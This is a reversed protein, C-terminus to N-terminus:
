ASEQTFVAAQAAPTVVQLVPEVWASPGTNINRITSGKPVDVWVEGGGDRQSVPVKARVRWGAEPTDPAADRSPPTVAVIHLLADDRGWDQIERARQETGDWVIKSPKPKEDDRHQGQGFPM